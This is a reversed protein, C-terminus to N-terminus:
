FNPFGLNSCSLPYLSGMEVLSFHVFDLDSSVSIIGGGLSKLYVEFDNLHAQFRKLLQDDNELSKYCLRGRSRVNLIELKVVKVQEETWSTSLFPCTYTHPLGMGSQM